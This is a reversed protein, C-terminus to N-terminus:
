QMSRKSRNKNNNMLSCNIPNVKKNLFNHINMQNTFAKRAIMKGLTAMSRSGKINKLNSRFNRTSPNPKSRM